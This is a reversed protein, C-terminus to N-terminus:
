RAVAIVASGEIEGARLAALAENAQELAFTRVSTRIPV